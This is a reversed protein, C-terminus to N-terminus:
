KVEFHTKVYEFDADTLEMTTTKREKNWWQWPILYMKGDFKGLKDITKFLLDQHGGEVNGQDRIDKTERTSVYIEGIRHRASSFVGEGDKAYQSFKENEKPTEGKAELAIKVFQERTYKEQGPDDGPKWPATGIKPQAINIEWKGKMVGNKQLTEMFTSVVEQMTSARNKALGGKPLRKYQGTSDKGGDVDRNPVLSEGSFITISINSSQHKKVFDAIEKLKKEIGESKEDNLKYRGSMFDTGFDVTIMEANKEKSVSYEVNNRPSTSAVDRDQGRGKISGLALAGAILVEKWGEEVPEVNEDIPKHAFESFKKIREM